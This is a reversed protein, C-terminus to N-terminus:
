NPVPGVGFAGVLFFAIYFLLCIGVCAGGAILLIRSLQEKRRRLVFGAILLGLGMVIAIVPLCAMVFFVLEM